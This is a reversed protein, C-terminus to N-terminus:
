FDQIFPISREGREENRLCCMNWNMFLVGADLYFYRVKKQEEAEAIQKPLIVQKDSKQM